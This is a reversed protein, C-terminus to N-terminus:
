LNALNTDKIPRGAPDVLRATVFILLNRKESAEYNSQFLRGILPIDGLIPIKDNVEAHKETIMGGMVVTANNYVAISTSISRTFFFPMQMPVHQANGLADYYTTGYDHWDPESVVQPTMTLNIMQGEASVEPLVTLIVGVERTEFDEPIAIPPPPISLGADGAVGVAPETVNYTTPYIYETVVKITAEAGSQTLVKPASLLDTGTKQDLAHLVVKLEPNTLVGAISMIGDAIPLGTDGLTTNQPIFRTGSSFSGEGMVIRQRGSLPDGATGAKQALEWDDTLGWEFGLADLDKQGVEVFRSEIEIQSPVVNLEALVREFVTLNNATNNVVLKGMASVYKISSGKPWTVGMQGFSEKWDAGGTDLADAEMGIFDGGRNPAASAGLEGSVSRIREEVSPLVNYMRVMLDGDPDDWKVIMVVSDEVRYKLNSVKTVIKLAELLSIHRASFTILPVGGSQTDGMDEATDAFPDDSAVDPMAAATDNGINLIINVGKKAADKEILDYDRSADQLFEIVDNINAQRFEIDPIMINKMKNLIQIRMSDTDKIQPIGKGTLDDASEEGLAYTRPNWTQKVIKLMSDRTTHFEMAAIDEQANSTKQLMRIAETNFPDRKLIGEFSMTADNYEGSMYFERGEKLRRAIDEKMQVYDDKKWRSVHKPSPDPRPHAREDAIDGILEAADIHGAVVAARAMQNAAELDKQKQLSLAWGYLTDALGKQTAARLKKDEHRRGIKDLTAETSEFFTRAEKFQAARLSAQAMGLTEVAHNRYAMRKLAESDAIDSVSDNLATDVPALPVVAADVADIAEPVVAGFADGLETMDEDEFDDAAEVMEEVAEEEISEEILEEVAAEEVVEEEIAEEVLEEVLEEEVAEEVVEEAVAEEVVEEEIAEEVLEEVVEEVVAEEVVAEEVLDEVVEEVVAEEVIEEVVEEVVAEEVVAEEVLDEVVEEVVAEEVIEEVVEEVVAEEMVAEASAVEEAIEEVSLGEAGKEELELPMDDVVAEEVIEEEIVEDVLEEEIVEEVLEEEVLEEVLELDESAVDELVMEEEVLSSNENSEQAVIWVSPIAVLMILLLCVWKKGDIM